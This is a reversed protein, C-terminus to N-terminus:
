VPNVLKGVVGAAWSLIERTLRLGCYIPWVGVLILITKFVPLNCSVATNNHSYLPIGIKRVELSFSFQNSFDSLELFRPYFQLTKCHEVSSPFCSKAQTIPLNSFFSPELFRSEVTTEKLECQKQARSLHIFLDIPFYDCLM